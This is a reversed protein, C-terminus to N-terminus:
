TSEKKSVDRFAIIVNSSFSIVTIPCDLLRFYKYKDVIDSIFQFKQNSLVKGCLALHKQNFKFKTTEVLCEAFMTMPYDSWSMDMMYEVPISHSKTLHEGIAKALHKALIELDRSKERISKDEIVEELALMSNCLTLAQEINYISLWKIPHNSM